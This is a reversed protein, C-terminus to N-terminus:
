TTGRINKLETYELKLAEIIDLVAATIKVEADSLHGIAYKVSKIYRPHSFETRTELQNGGFRRREGSSFDAAIRLEFREYFMVRALAPNLNCGEDLLRAQLQGTFRRVDQQLVFRMERRILQNRATEGTRDIRGPKEAYKKM